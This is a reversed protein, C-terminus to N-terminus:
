RRVQTPTGPLMHEEFHKEMQQRLEGEGSPRKRKAVSPSALVRCQGEVKSLCDEVYQDLQNLINFVKHVAQERIAQM